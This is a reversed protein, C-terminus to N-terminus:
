RDILRHRCVSSKSLPFFSQSISTFFLKKSGFFMTIVNGRERFPNKPCSSQLTLCSPPRRTLTLAHKGGRQSIWQGHHPQVSGTTQQTLTARPLPVRTQATHTHTHTHKRFYHFQKSSRSRLQTTPPACSQWGGGRLERRQTKVVAHALTCMAHACTRAHTHTEPNHIRKGSRRAVQARNLDGDIVALKHKTIRTVGASHTGEVRRDCRRVWGQAGDMGV